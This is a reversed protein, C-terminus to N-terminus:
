QAPGFDREGVNLNQMGAQGRQFAARDQGMVNAGAFGADGGARADGGAGPSHSEDGLAFDQAFDDLFQAILQAQVHGVNVARGADSFQPLLDVPPCLRVVGLEIDDRLLEQGYAAQGILSEIGVRDVQFLKIVAVFSDVGQNARAFVSLFLDFALDEFQTLFLDNRTLHLPAGEVEVLVPLLAGTAQLGGGLSKEVDALVPFPDLQAAGGTLGDALLDDLEDFAALDGNTQAFEAREGPVSMTAHAAIQSAAVLADLVVGRLLNGLFHGVQQGRQAVLLLRALPVLAEAAGQLERGVPQKLVQEVGLNAVLSMGQGPFGFNVLRDFGDVGPSRIEQGSCEQSAGRRFHPLYEGQQPTVPRGLEGVSVVLLVLENFLVHSEPDDPVGHMVGLALFDGGPM